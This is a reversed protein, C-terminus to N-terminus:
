LRPLAMPPRLATFKLIGPAPSPPTAGGFNLNNTIVRASSDVSQITSGEGFNLRSSGLAQDNGLVLTGGNVATDTAGNNGYTNVGLLVLTGAGTKTLGFAGSIVGGVTLTNANVTM